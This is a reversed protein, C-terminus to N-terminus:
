PKPEPETTGAAPQHGTETVPTEGARNDRNPPEGSGDLIDFLGRLFGPTLMSLPNVAIKPDAGTGKISYRAAFVGGGKGGTLLDGVIPVKGVVNNLSYSPVITGEIDLSRKPFTITGDATLGMASGYTKAEDLTLVDKALTFPIRTKDFQIGKGQLTDIIGTLSALTLLKALIPVKKVTHRNIYLKGSLVSDPTSDDYDGTISLMGGEADDLLNLAGFFMGANDANIALQRVGKPNRLIRFTFPKGDATKGTIDAFKCIRTTCELEGKVDELMYGPRTVIRRLDTKLQMAPFHRFSFTPEKSSNPDDELWPSVDASMGRIDLSHGGEIARYYLSDLNTEGMVMKSIRLVALASLDDNLDANGKVEAGLGKLHFSSIALKGDKKDTTLELKAAEGLPKKWPFDDMNIGAHTLDITAMAVEASASQKVDASVGVRGSLFPFEPYGFRPLVEVPATAKVDILTDYAGAAPHFLYTVKSESVSAGNVNGAGTFVLQENNIALKGNIGSVDFKNMFGPQTMDALDATIDYTIDPDGPKGDKGKPAYFHFGTKADGTIIGKAKSADLNLRQAKELRPLGLFHIMDAATTEAHLSVEIYPNDPNLDAIHVRGKSLSTGDMYQASEISADLAIGDVHVAGKIGTVQPHGPLYTVAADALRITADVAERPLTPKDLDGYTININAEAEPISGATINETIWSRTLPALGPPWYKHVDGAPVNTISAKGRVAVQGASRSLVGSASVKTNGMDLTLSDVQIDQLNNSILGDSHMADITLPTDLFDSNVTGKDGDISYAIHNIHGQLDTNLKITGSLPLGFQKFQPDDSFLSSLKDPMFNSFAITGEMNEGTVVLTAEVPTHYDGYTVDGSLEAQVNGHRNRRFVMGTNAANLLVGEQASGISVDAERVSIYHLKRLNDNELPKLLPILIAAAPVLAKGTKPAEQTEQIEGPPAARPKLGFSISRDPAQLLSIVPKSITLSTPLIRGRLLSLFHVGLSIEPFTSFENGDNTMVSVKRLRLDIPHKWGDWVLWTESIRVDYRGKQSLSQEIYPTIDELSRPGTAVWVLLVNVAVLLFVAFGLLLNTLIKFHRRM